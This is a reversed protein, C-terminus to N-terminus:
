APAGLRTNVWISDYQFIGGGKGSPQSFRKLMKFGAQTLVAASEGDLRQGGFIQYNETEVHLIGIHPLMAGCGILVEYAAGEVDLKMVDIATIGQKACFTDLRICPLELKSINYREGRYIDNGEFISHIGPGNKEYFQVTGNKDTVVINVAIVEPNDKLHKNYNAPMGEFAYVKADPWARALQLSDGGDCAGVDFVVAPKAIYTNALAIFEPMDPSLILGM